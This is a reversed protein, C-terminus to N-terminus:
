QVGEEGEEEERRRMLEDWVTCHVVEKAMLVTKHAGIATGRAVQAMEIAATLTPKKARTALM